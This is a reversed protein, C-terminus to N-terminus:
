VHARGIQNISKNSIEHTRQGVSYAILGYIGIASLLLALVAFSVLVQAFFSDGHEQREILAAMSMVRDLPLDADVQAMRNRMASALAGPDSHTRLLLSF